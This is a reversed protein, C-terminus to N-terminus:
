EPPNKLITVHCDFDKLPNFEFREYIDVLVHERLYKNQSEQDGREVLWKPPKKIYQNILALNESFPQINIYFVDDIYADDEGINLPSYQCLEGFKSKNVILIKKEGGRYLEFIPIEVDNFLLWGEFGHVNLQRSGEVWKPRFNKTSKFLSYPDINIVILFIQSLDSYNYLTKEFDAWETPKANKLIEEILFNDEGSALSRGYGSGWDLYHVHWEDFFASKEDLTSIGFRDKKNVIEKLNENYLKYHKFIDRMVASEDFSSIMEKKFAIVKKNSIKAGRIIETEAEIQRHRANLLLKKFSEIQAIAKDTLIFQWRKPEMSISNLFKMLSGTEDTMSAFDRSTPLEIQGIAGESERALLCLSKIVYFTEINKFPDRTYVKGDPIIDWFGRGWLDESEYQHVDLFIKTLKELSDPLTTEIAEYLKHVPDDKQAACLEAFIWSSLGFIMEFKRQNIEQEIQELIEQRELLRRNEETKNLEYTRKLFSVSHAASQAEFDEFMEIVINLFMKFNQFDKKGYASKLLEQFMILFYVAFDKITILEDKTQEERRIASKLYYTIVSKINLFYRDLIVKKLDSNQSSSLFYIFNSFQIFEQFLYHDKFEIARIMVAIPLYSIHHIIEKDHSNVAIELLDRIDSSLWGPFEWGGGISQREKRALNATYIAGYMKMRTLFGEAIAVYFKQLEETKGLQHNSIAGIFQDKVGSLEARIEDSFSESQKIDFIKETLDGLKKLINKDDGILQKNIAFLLNTKENVPDHLKKLIYREANVLSKLIPSDAIASSDSM